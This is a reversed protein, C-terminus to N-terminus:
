KITKRQEVADIPCSPRRYPCPPKEQESQTCDRLIPKTCDTNEQTARTMTINGFLMMGGLMILIVANNVCRSLLHQIM